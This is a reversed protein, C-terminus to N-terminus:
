TPDGNDTAESANISVTNTLAGQRLESAVTKLNSVLRKGIQIWSKGTNVAVQTKAEVNQWASQAM